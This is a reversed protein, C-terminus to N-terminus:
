ACARPNCAAPAAARPRVIIRGVVAAPFGAATKEPGLGRAESGPVQDCARSCSGDSAEPRLGSAQIRLRGSSGAGEGRERLGRGRPCRSRRPAAPARAARASAACAARAATAGARRRARRFRSRRRRRAPGCGRRWRRRRTTAAPPRGSATSASPRRRQRVSARTPPRGRRPSGASWPRRRSMAARGSPERLRLGAARRRNGRRSRPAERDAGVAGGQERGVAARCPGVMRDAFLVEMEILDRERREPRRYMAASAPLTMDTPRRRRSRSAARRRRVVSREEADQREVSVRQESKPRRPCRKRESSAPSLQVATSVPVVAISFPPM